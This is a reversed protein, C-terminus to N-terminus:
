AADVILHIRDQNSGNCVSHEKRHDFWWAEGPAMHVSEVGCNFTTGPDSQLCIHYRKFHQAYLGQDIHPAIGGGPKLRTIIVRGVEQTGLKDALVDILPMDHELHWPYWVADTSGFIAEPTWASAWRLYVTETDAHATGPYNQRATIVHWLWEKAALEDLLPQVNLGTLLREFNM